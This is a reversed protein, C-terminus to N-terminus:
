DFQYDMQLFIERGTQPYDNIYGPVVAGSPLSAMPAPYVIDNDFINKIGARLDLNRVGLNFMNATVDIVTYGDLDLRSDGAERSRDGVAKFQVGFAYDPWPQLLFAFNSILEAVGAVNDNTQDNETFFKTVTADLKVSRSMQHQLEVELGTSTLQGQNKYQRSVSDVTILDKAVFYFFTSRFISAGNNYAYGAELTDIRESQLDDNGTVILNNQTYLELFTPPRFSRAYQFKLNQRDTLSYVGAFRPTVDSGVDDYYDFRMGLTLKLKEGIQFQDQAFVGIVTRDHGEELWNEDGEYRQLVAPISEPQLTAPDYNRNVYIEEPKVQSIEAGFLLEHREWGKYIFDTTFYYKNDRYNPAGLVGDPYVYSTPPPSTFGAPFLQHPNSDLEFQLIGISSKSEWDAGLDWERSIEASQMTIYKVIRQDDEPLANALGFYDGLGEQVRQFVFSYGKFNVDLILSGHREANNVEGPSNSIPELPTGFLIDYGAEVDGGDAKVISASLNASFQNDLSKYSFMGGLSERGLDEARAFVMDQDKRTIVNIVGVSAYEGYIASGPGRIVEIRDVQEIPLILLSTAAGLTANFSTNNLLMKIKSSFFTKGIGRVLIQPQGDNTRSLEVGPILGLAEYVNQVGRAMLDKGHMVSMIGPVFDINMKSKTALESEQDLLQVLEQLVGSTHEASDMNAPLMDQQPPINETGSVEGEALVNTFIALMAIGIVIKLRGVYRKHNIKTM